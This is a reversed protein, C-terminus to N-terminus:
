GAIADVAERAEAMEARVELSRKDHNLFDPDDQVLKLFEEVTGGGDAFKKFQRPYLLHAHMEEFLRFRKYGARQLQTLPRECFRCAHADAILDLSVRRKKKCEDSCTVVTGRRTKNPPIENTCVVCRLPTYERNAM